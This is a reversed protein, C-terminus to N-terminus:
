NVQRMKEEKNAIEVQHYLLIM